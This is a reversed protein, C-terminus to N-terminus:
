IVMGKPDFYGKEVFFSIGAIGACGSAALQPVAEHTIGGLAFVPIKRECTWEMFRAIGLPPLPSTKSGGAFVPSLFAYDAGADEAAKLEEASHASYGILLHPFRKRVASIPVNDKQLHVGDADAAIAVDLHGNVIFKTRSLMARLHRALQLLEGPELDKERLQFYDVGAEEALEAVEHLTQRYCDHHTILCYQFSRAKSDRARLKSMQM